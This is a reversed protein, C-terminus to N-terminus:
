SQWNVNKDRDCVLPVVEKDVQFLFLQILPFMFTCKWTEKDPVVQLYRTLSLRRRLEAPCWSLLTSPPNRLFYERSVSFKCIGQNAYDRHRKWWQQFVNFEDYHALCRKSIIGLHTARDTCPSHRFKPNAEKWPQIHLGTVDHRRVHRLQWEFLAFTGYKWSIQLTCRVKVEHVWMESHKM